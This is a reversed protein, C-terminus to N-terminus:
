SSGSAPTADTAGNLFLDTLGTLEFIRAAASSVNQVRLGRGEADLRRRMELLASIGTSDIFTLDELDVVVAGGHCDVVGEVSSRFAEVASLDFEGILGLSVVDGNAHVHVQFTSTSSTDLRDELM